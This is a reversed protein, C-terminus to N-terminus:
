IPKGNGPESGDDDNQKEALNILGNEISFVKKLNGNTIIAILRFCSIYEVFCSIMLNKKNRNPQNIITTM